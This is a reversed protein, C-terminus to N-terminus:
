KEFEVIDTTITCDVKIFIIYFGTKVNMTTNAYAQGDKLPYKKTLDEKANGVLSKMGNGGMFLFYLNNATGSVNTNIYKFNASSLCVSNNISGSTFIACSNFLFLISILIIKNSNKM